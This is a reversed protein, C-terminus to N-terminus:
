KEVPKASPKLPKDDAEIKNLRSLQEYLMDALGVGKQQTAEKAIEDDLMDQFTSESEDSGFLDTKQVTSRMSKLLHALFLSEVDRCAERLKADERDQASQVQGPQTTFTPEITM